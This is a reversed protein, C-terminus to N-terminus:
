RGILVAKIKDPLKSDFNPKEESYGSLSILLLGMLLFVLKKM